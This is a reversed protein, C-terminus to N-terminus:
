YAQFKFKQGGISAEFMAGGRPITFVLVGDEYDATAASGSKAAVASAQAAFALTGSKFSLLAAQDQFFIIESYSQGGLQVGITGQTLECRGVRKGKEFLEGHGHAGGVGIAGKTVAPFVAYGRAQDFHKKMSPDQAKFRDIAAMVQEHLVDRQAPTTPASACSALCVATLIMAAFM